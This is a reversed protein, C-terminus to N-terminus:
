RGSRVKLADHVADTVAAAFARQRVTNEAAAASFDASIQKQDRSPRDAILNALTDADDPSFFTSDGVAQERHVDIDSLILPTGNAKAEEVTTSWGEFRSPNIIATAALTMAQVDGYPVGGLIRIQDGLGLAAIRETLQGRLEPARPDIGHGTAIILSRDGRKRLQEAADILIAHNKHVWLQNPVFFFREDIGMARVRASADAPSLQTRRPASFRAIRTRSRASPYFNICDREATASSLMITRGSGIQARFGIERRMRGSRSFLHPLRRHQFDPMWALTAAQLRWGFFQAPEFMVDIGHTDVLRAIAPDIGLAIATALRPSKKETALHEDYVINTRPLAALAELEAGRSQPDALLTVHLDEEGYEALTQVLNLMYNWGGLWQPGGIIPIGFRTTSM